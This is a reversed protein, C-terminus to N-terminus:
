HKERETERKRKRSDSKNFFSICSIKKKRNMDRLLTKFKIKM